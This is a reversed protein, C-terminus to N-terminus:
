GVVRRRGRGLATRLVAPLARPGAAVAEDAVDRFLPPLYRLMLTSWTLHTLVPAQLGASSRRQLGWLSGMAGAALVLVPNRTPVTALMYVATSTAVPRRDELAAFMAGRFFVEEGFGNALTTLYVLTDDGEDAYSLVNSIWRALPPIERVVLGGAYFVGFAAAGTAVPALVPRRVIQNQTQIWGLHLPGSALGGVLWVGAVGLTTGYFATSGPRTSLGVGLLGAGAVSTAAVVRRRRRVVAESEHHRVAVRHKLSMPLRGRLRGLLGHDVEGRRDALADRVADDFCRRDFPILRHLEDDDVVVENVMSDVLSRGAAADVDTILSLWHSSLKPSLLPVPLLFLPRHEIAAVRRMMDSYRLVEDGGVEFPRGVTEEVDLVGVLYRVVDTLAIPQTRTSVWRPTVMLPLREVLQRTMEWSLGQHGIVIGARLTTVPVGARGLLEEVERRSRLHPSLDDDEKGLGGLYVIREVGANAAAKGFSTAAEADLREFDPSDLSHVLYYAVDIGELADPLTDPDHVDGFVPRGVGEYSPPHRTMAVVEHGADALAPCLRRGVFGSAGAVLVRRPRDSPDVTVDSHTESASM